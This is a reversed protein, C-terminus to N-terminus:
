RAMVASIALWACGASVALFVAEWLLAPVHTQQALSDADSHPVDGQGPGVTQRHRHLEVITRPGAALLYGALLLILLSGAVASVQAIGWIVAALVVAVLLGRLSRQVPLLLLLVVAFGALAWHLHGHAVCVAIGAGAVAPAPYGSFTTLVRGLGAAPGVSHTVGSTDKELRIGTVQRGAALAMVAHGGEHIWTAVLRTRSWVHPAFLVAGGALLATLFLWPTSPAPSTQTLWTWLADIM